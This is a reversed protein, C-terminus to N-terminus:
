CFSPIDFRWACHVFICGLKAASIDHGRMDNKTAMTFAGRRLRKSKERARQLVLAAQFRRRRYKWSRKTNSRERSVVIELTNFIYRAFGIPNPFQISYIADHDASPTMESANRVSFVCALASSERRAIQHYGLKIAPLTHPLSPFALFRSHSVTCISRAPPPRPSVAM